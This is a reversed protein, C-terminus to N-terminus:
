KRGVYIDPLNGLTRLHSPLTLFIFGVCFVLIPVFGRGAFKLSERAFCYIEIGGREWWGWTYVCACALVYECGM